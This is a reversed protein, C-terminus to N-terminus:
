QHELFLADVGHYIVVVVLCYALFRHLGKLLGVRRWPSYVLSLVVALMLTLSLLGPVDRFKPQWHILSLMLVLLGLPAHLQRVLAQLETQPSPGKGARRASVIALIILLGASLGLLMGTDSEMRYDQSLRMGLAALAAVIVPLYWNLRIPKLRSKKIVPM